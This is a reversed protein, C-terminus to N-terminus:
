ENQEGKLFNDNFSKQCSLVLYLQPSEPWLSFSNLELNEYGIDPIDNITLVSPVEEQIADNLNDYGFKEINKCFEKIPSYFNIWNEGEKKNTWLTSWLFNNKDYAWEHEEKKVWGVKYEKFRWHDGLGWDVLLYGGPNLLNHFEKMMLAPDKCFYACRTCVILDFKSDIKYPFNNINWNGLALDYFYREKFNLLKTFNNEKEFGFFGVSRSDVKFQMKKLVSFYANFVYPDSKGM